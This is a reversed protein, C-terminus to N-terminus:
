IKHVCIVIYEVRTGSARQSAFSVLPWFCSGRTMDIAFGVEVQIPESNSDRMHNAMQLFYTLGPREYAREYAAQIITSILIGRMLVSMYAQTLTSILIGRM